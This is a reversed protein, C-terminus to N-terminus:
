KSVVSRLVELRDWEARPEVLYHLHLTSGDAFRGEPTFPSKQSCCRSGETTKKSNTGDLAPASWYTVQFPRM